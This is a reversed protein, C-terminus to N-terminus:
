YGAQRDVLNILEDGNVYRRLNEEFVKAAKEIYDRANGAIHPTLIFNPMKWFPSDDPLPEEGFVDMAVGGLDGKQLAEILAAEDVVGGRGVNVLFAGKKMAKIVRADFANQTADTRPVTIVVFDCDRVMTALAQPPYLRDFKEGLQDGTGEIVFGTDDEVKKVNRKTALVTMGFVKAVRAIERGIAGYGVIGLTSGRLERPTMDYRNEGWSNAIQERRWHPLNHGFSLMMAFAYEAINTAHIGRMSTIQVDERKQLLPQQLLGDVGAFHAQLWKLNPMAEAPPLVNMTYLVDATKWVDTMIDTYNRAPRLLIELKPSIDRWGEIVEEAFKITVLVRIQDADSM